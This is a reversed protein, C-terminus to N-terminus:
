LQLCEKAKAGLQCGVWIVVTGVQFWGKLAESRSVETVGFLDLFSIISPAAIKSKISPLMGSQLQVQQWPMAGTGTTVGSTKAMLPTAEM